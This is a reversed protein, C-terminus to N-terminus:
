LINELQPQETKEIHEAITIVMRCEARVLTQEGARAYHPLVAFISELPDLDEHQLFLCLRSHLVEWRAVFAESQEAAGEMDGAAALQEIHKMSEIIEGTDRATVLHGTVSVGVALLLLVISAIVRKM